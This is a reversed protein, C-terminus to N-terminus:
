EHCTANRFIVVAFLVFFTRLSRSAPTQCQRTGRDLHSVDPDSLKPKSVKKLFTFKLTRIALIIKRLEVFGAVICSIGGVGLLSVISPKRGLREMMPVCIFFGPIESLATLTYTLYVNGPLDSTNFSLGYYAM